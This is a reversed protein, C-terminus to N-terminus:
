KVTCLMNETQVAWLGVSSVIKSVTHKSFLQRIKKVVYAVELSNNTNDTVHIDM